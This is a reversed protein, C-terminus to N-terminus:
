SPQGARTAQPLLRAARAVHDDMHSRAALVLWSRAFADALESQGLAQSNETQNALIEVEMAVYKDAHRICRRRAESLWEAARSREGEGIFSLALVRAAAGEWCSDGLQCSLAFAEELAPRVSAPRHAQRLRAEGLLAVPWPRFALWHEDDVLGICDALWTEAEDLRGVCLLGRAGIGLAFVERRCNGARRAQDLALAIQELGEAPRGWDILNMGAVAHIGALSEGGGALAQAQTLCDAAAPRRGAKTEIFGLERLATAAMDGYGRARAIEASQRLLVAGEVAHGRVAHVLATGLELLARAELHPDGLATADQAARRLCDLGADSAGASLAALGSAILSGVFATRSIGVPPSSMTPRAASRLASSPREGLEDHFLAETVAVHRQAADHRGAMALAKVLLVHAGEDFPARQVGLEALRIAKEFEAMALARLAEQRIRSEVLSSLRSREVLLWTAFEPGAQPELGDLLQGAQEIDFDDGDFRTLDVDCDPPLVISLPDGRLHLRRGLARRLMALCGRLSGLPDEAEPFLEAALVRREIPGRALLLRALLAWVKQGRMAVPQGTADLIAPRGLLRITVGM